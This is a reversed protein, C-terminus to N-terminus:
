LFDTRFIWQFSLHELVKALFLAFFQNVLFSGSAPFSQPCSSFPIVSSSITLHCWQSLPCQTQIFEPFQHHVPLGPMSCDMPDWFTLYSQAVSSFQISTVTITPLLMWIRQSQLSERNGQTGAPKENTVIIMGEGSAFQHINMQMNLSPDLTPCM